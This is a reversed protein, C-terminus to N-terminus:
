HSILVWLPWAPAVSAPVVDAHAAARRRQAAAHCFCRRRRRRSTPRERVDKPPRAKLKEADATQFLKGNSNVLLTDNKGENLSSM